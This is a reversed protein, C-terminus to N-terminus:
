IFGFSGHGVDDPIKQSDSNYFPEILQYTTNDGGTATYVLNYGEVYKQLPFVQTESPLVFVGSQQKGPIINCNPRQAYLVGLILTLIILINM